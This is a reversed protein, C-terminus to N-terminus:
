KVLGSFLQIKCSLVASQEMVIQTGLSERRGRITLTADADRLIHLINSAQEIPFREVAAAVGCSCRAHSM